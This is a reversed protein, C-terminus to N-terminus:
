AQQSWYFIPSGHIFVDLNQAHNDWYPKLVDLYSFHSQHNVPIANVFSEFDVSVEIPELADEIHRLMSQHAARTRSANYRQQVSHLWKKALVMLIEADNHESLKTEREYLGAMGMWNLSYRAGMWANDINHEEKLRWAARISEVAAMMECAQVVWVASDEDLIFRPQGKISLPTFFLGHMDQYFHILEHLWTLLTTNKLYRPSFEFSAKYAGAELQDRFEKQFSEKEFESVSLGFPAYSGNGSFFKYCINYGYTKLHHAIDGMFQDKEVLAFLVNTKNEDSLLWMCAMM